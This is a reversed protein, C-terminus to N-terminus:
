STTRVPHKTLPSLILVSYVRQKTNKLHEKAFHVDSALFGPYWAEGLPWIHCNFGPRFMFGPILLSIQAVSFFWLCTKGDLVTAVVRTELIKDVAVSM